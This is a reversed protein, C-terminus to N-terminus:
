AFEGAAESVDAADTIEFSIKHLIELKIKYM